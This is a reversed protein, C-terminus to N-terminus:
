DKFHDPLKGIYLKNALSYKPLKAPVNHKASKPDLCSCCDECVHVKFTGHESSEIGQRCLMMNDLARHGFVFEDKGYHVSHRPIVLFTTFGSPLIDNERPQYTTSPIGFRDRTCVTCVPHKQWMSNTFYDPGLVTIAMM